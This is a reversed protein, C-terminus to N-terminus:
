RAGDKMRKFPKMRTEYLEELEDKTYSKLHDIIYLPLEYEKDMTKETKIELLELTADYLSKYPENKLYYHLTKRSNILACHNKNVLIAIADYSQATYKTAIEYYLARCAAYTRKRTRSRIDIGSLDNISEIVNELNIKTKKM